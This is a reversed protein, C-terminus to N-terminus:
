GMLAEAPPEFGDKELSLDSDHGLKPLRGASGAPLLFNLGAATQPSEAKEAPRQQELEKLETELMWFGASGACFGM